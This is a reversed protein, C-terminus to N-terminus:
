FVPRLSRLLKATEIAALAAQSGANDDDLGSRARAQAFDYTTLIGCTVPLEYDRSVNTIGDLALRSVHEFHATEGKIVCGIAIIADFGQSALEEAVLPIELAGPVEVITVQEEPVSCAALARLAGALLADTIERNWRSVVIGIRLESGDLDGKTHIVM